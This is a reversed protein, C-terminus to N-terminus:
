TVPVGFEGFIAGEGSLDAEVVGVVHCEDGPTPSNGCGTRM